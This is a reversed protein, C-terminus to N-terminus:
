NKIETKKFKISFVKSFSILIVLYEQFKAFHKSTAPYFEIFENFISLDKFYM